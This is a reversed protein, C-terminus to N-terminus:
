VFSDRSGTRSQSQGKSAQQQLQAGQRQAGQRQDAQRQGAQRQGAQRQNQGDSTQPQLSEALPALVEIGGAAAANLRSVDTGLKQITATLTENASIIQEETLQSRNTALAEGIELVTSMGQGVSQLSSNLVSDVQNTTQAVASLAELLPNAPAQASNDNRSNGQRGQQGTRQQQGTMRNQRGSQAMEGPLVRPKRQTQTQQQQQQQQQQPSIAAALQEFTAQKSAGILEIEQSLQTVQAAGMAFSAGLESEPNLLSPIGESQVGALVQSLGEGLEQVAQASSATLSIQELLSAQVAANIDQQQSAANSNSGDSSPATAALMVKPELASDTNILRNKFYM